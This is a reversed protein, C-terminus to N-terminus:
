AAIKKKVHRLLAILASPTIGPIRSAAGLSAPKAKDLKQVVENSLSGISAYDIDTSLKLNEEKRFMVIDADHRKMYNAYLADYSLQERIDTRINNLIPWIAIAENWTVDRMGLVESVTRKVGDQKITIGYKELAHPTITESHIFNRAANLLDSKERWQAQRDQGICGIAIGKDTLRQDANDARLRLRYEARSTFM